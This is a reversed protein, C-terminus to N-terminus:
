QAIPTLREVEVWGDRDGDLQVRVWAGERGDMRAVDGADLASLREAGLAPSAYLVAGSSVVALHKAAAGEDLWVALAAGGLSLLTLLPATRGMTRRRRAAAVAWILCALVWAGLAINAVLSAGVRPPAAIWGDQAARILALRDRADDAFADLRAARQWGIVADATDALEWAATGANAWADTARPALRTAAAFRAAAERYQHGAYAAVGEQFESAALAGNSPGAMATGAGIVAITAVVILARVETSAVRSRAEQEVSRYVAYATERLDDSLPAGGGYAAADLRALLGDARVGTPGTVGERRLVRALGGPEALTRPSLAFREALAAVFARRLAAADCPQKSRAIVRLM